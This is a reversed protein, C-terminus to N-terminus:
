TSHKKYNHLLLQKKSLYPESCLDCKFINISSHEQSYHNHLADLSDLASVCAKCRFTKRMRKHRLTIEAVDSQSIQGDELTQPSVKKTKKRVTKTPITPAKQHVSKRHDTLDCEYAFTRSCESCSFKKVGHKRMCHINLASRNICQQGCANCRFHELDFYLDQSTAECSLFPELPQNLKEPEKIVPSEASSVYALAAPMLVSRSPNESLITNSDFINQITVQEVTALYAEKQLCFESMNTEDEMAYQNISVFLLLYLYGSNKM